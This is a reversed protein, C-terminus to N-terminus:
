RRKRIRSVEDSVAPNKEEEREAEAIGAAQDEFLLKKTESVDTTRLRSVRQARENTGREVLKELRAKFGLASMPTSPSSTSASSSPSGIPSALLHGTRINVRKRDYQKQQEHLKQMQQKRSPTGGYNGNSNGSKEM